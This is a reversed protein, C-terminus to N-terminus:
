LSSLIVGLWVTHKQEYYEKDIYIKKKIIYLIKNLIILHSLIKYTVWM